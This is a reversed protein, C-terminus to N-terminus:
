KQNRFLTKQLGITFSYNKIDSDGFDHLRTFDESYRLDLKTNDSIKVIIGATLGASLNNLDDGSLSTLSNSIMYGAEPGAYVDLFKLPSFTVLLPLSLYHYKESRRLWSINGNGAYGYGGYYGGSSGYTGTGFNMIYYDGGKLQYLLETQLGIPGLLNNRKLFIGAAFGTRPEFDFVAGNYNKNIGSFLVGGKIGMETQALSVNGVLFLLVFVSLASIKLNKNKM